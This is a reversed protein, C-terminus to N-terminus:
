KRASSVHAYGNRLPIQAPGPRRDRYQPGVRNLRASVLHLRYLHDDGGWLTFEFKERTRPGTHTQTLNLEVRTASPDCTTDLERVVPAPFLVGPYQDRAVPLLRRAAIGKESRLACSEVNCFICGM